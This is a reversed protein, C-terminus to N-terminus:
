TLMYARVTYTAPLSGLKTYIVAAENSDNNSNNNLELITPTPALAQSNNSHQVPVAETAINFNDDNDWFFSDLFSSSSAYNSSSM